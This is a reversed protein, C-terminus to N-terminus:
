RARASEMVRAIVGRYAGSFDKYLNSGQRALPRVTNNSLEFAGANFIQYVGPESGFHTLFILYVVNDKLQESDHNEARITVGDRIVEGGYTSLVLPIAVPVNGALIRIPLIDFDTIVATDAANVYSQRRSVRAELVLDSRKTLEDVSLPIPEGLVGIIVPADPKRSIDYIRDSITQATAASNDLAFALALMTTLLLRKM